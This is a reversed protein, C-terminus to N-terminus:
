LNTYYNSFLLTQHRWSQEKEYSIIQPIKHNWSFNLITQEIATFFAMPIKISIINFRYLNKPLVPMKVVNKQNVLMPYREM